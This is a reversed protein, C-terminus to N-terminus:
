GKINKIEIMSKLFLSQYDYVGSIKEQLNLIINFIKILEQEEVQKAIAVYQSKLYPNVDYDFGGKIKILTGVEIKITNIFTDIDAYNQEAYLLEKWIGNYDKKIFYEIFSHSPKPLLGDLSGLSSYQELLHIAQRLNNGSHNAIVWMDNESISLKLEDVIEKLRNFIDRYKLPNLKFVQSRTLITKPIKSLETTCFIWIVNDTEEIPKLLCNFAAKSLMHAEDLIVGRYRDGISYQTNEILERISEVGTTNSANVELLGLDKCGLEKLFIRSLTTKGLGSQGAFIYSNSLGSKTKIQQKLISVTKEQGYVHEFKSPRFQTNLDM